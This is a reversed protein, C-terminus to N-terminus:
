YVKVHPRRHVGAAFGGAFLMVAGVVLEARAHWPKLADELRTAAMDLRERQWDTLPSTRRDQASASRLMAAITALIAVPSARGIEMDLTLPGRAELRALLRLPASM